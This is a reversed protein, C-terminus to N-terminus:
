RVIPSSSSAAIRALRKPARCSSNPPFRPLPGALASRSASCFALASSKLFWTRLWARVWSALARSFVIATAFGSFAARTSFM